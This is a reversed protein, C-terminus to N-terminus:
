GFLSDAVFPNSSKESKFTSMPGHGPVFAIDDGLPFLKNRISSILDQLNGKPFDTRGISGAFLVDGVQAWGQESHYFVVHGPTHGPCHIVDFTVNGVTVTDGDNLWRHPTFTETHPFGFSKCQETLSEIWFADDQHPGEIPVQYKKSLSETAGVHDLHGHTLLIKELKLNRQQIASELLHSDGGPDILACHNTKKCIVLTCNQQFPTVPIVLYDFESSM